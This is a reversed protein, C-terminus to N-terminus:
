IRRYRPVSRVRLVEKWTVAPADPSDYGRPCEVTYVFEIDGPDEVQVGVGLFDLPPTQVVEARGKGFKFTRANRHAQWVVFKAALYVPDSFRTGSTSDAGCQNQVDKFFQALDPLVSDPYGDSHRYVNADVRDYGKITFHISCRTSM